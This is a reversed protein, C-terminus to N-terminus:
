RSLAHCKFSLRGSSVGKMVPIWEMERTAPRERRWFRITRYNIYRHYYLSLSNMLLTEVKFKIYYGERGTYRKKFDDEAYEYYCELEERIVGHVLTLYKDVRWFFFVFLLNKFSSVALFDLAHVRVGVRARLRHYIESTAGPGGRMRFRLNRVDCEVLVGGHYDVVKFWKWTDLGDGEDLELVTFSVNRLLEDWDVWRARYEIELPKNFSPAATATVPDWIRPMYTPTDYYSPVPTPTSTSTSIGTITATATATDSDKTDQSWQDSSSNDGDYDAKSKLKDRRFVTGFATM